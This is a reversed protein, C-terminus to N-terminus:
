LDATKLKRPIKVEINQSKGNRLVKFNFNSQQTSRSVERRLEDTSEVENDNLHTIIDGEHLGAKAAASEDDVELVKVGKGDETDQAKIGLRARGPFTYTQGFAGNDWDFNFNPVEVHPAIHNNLVMSRRKGLTATVTQEKGDRLFTISVKEEPKHSRIAKTLDEPKEITKDGVKTIIDGSKLGSKEAGSEDTVQTIEAGRDDAKTSVGLFAINDDFLEFNNDGFSWSGGQSRFPTRPSIVTVNRRKSISINEDEYEDAPKGNVLVENDRIEITVKADKDTKRRIIIEESKNKSKEKDKEAKDKDQAEVSTALLVLAAIGTLTTLFRKM